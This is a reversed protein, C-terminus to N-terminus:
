RSIAKLRDQMGGRLRGPRDPPAREEVSAGAPPWGGLPPAPIALATVSSSGLGRIADFTYERGRGIVLGPQRQESWQDLQASPAALDFFRQREEELAALREEEREGRDLRELWRDVSDIRPDDDEAGEGNTRAAETASAVAKASAAVAIASRGRSDDQMDALDARPEEVEDEEKVLLDSGKLRVSVWGSGPGHGSVLEHYRLRDGQLEAARVRAGLALRQDKQPSATSRGDRVIIGGVGAGGVVRWLSGRGSAASRAAKESAGAAEPDIPRMAEWTSGVHARLTPDLALLKQIQAQVERQRQAEADAAVAM